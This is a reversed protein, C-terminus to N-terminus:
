PGANGAAQGRLSRVLRRCEKMLAADIEAHAGDDGVPVDDHSHYLGLLAAVGLGDGAYERSPLVDSLETALRVIEAAGERPALSGSTVLDAYYQSLVRGASARSPVVKSLQQLGRQFLEQLESPSREGSGSGALVALDVSDHGDQLAHEAVRPLDSTLVRGLAFAALNQDLTM